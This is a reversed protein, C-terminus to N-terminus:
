TYDRRSSGDGFPPVLHEEIISWLKYSDLIGENKLSTENYIVVAM